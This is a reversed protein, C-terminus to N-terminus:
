GAPTPFGQLGGFRPFTSFDTNLIRDSMQYNAANEAYLAILRGVPGAVIMHYMVAGVLAAAVALLISGSATLVFLTVCFAWWFSGAIVLAMLGTAGIVKLTTYPETIQRGLSSLGAKTINKTGRGAAVGRKVTRSGFRSLVGVIKVRDRASLEEAEESGIPQDDPNLTASGSSAKQNEM